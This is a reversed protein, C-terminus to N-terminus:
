IPVGILQKVIQIPLEKAAGIAIAKLTYELAIGRASRYERAYPTFVPPINESFRLLVIRTNRPLLNIWEAAADETKAAQFLISLEVKEGLQLQEFQKVTM